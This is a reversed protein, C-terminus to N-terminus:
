LSRAVRFGTGFDRLLPFGWGRYAARASWQNLYWASSRLVRQGCTDTIFASGDTPADDYDSKYCDQTWQWVNGSMDYLGFKNAPFSGVPATYLFNDNCNPVTWTNYRVKVRQDAVNAIKCVSDPDTDRFYPTTTGARAAYEWEAETLLRYKKGTKKSLWDIYAQADDFNVCVVPDRDTQPYGPNEWSYNPYPVFKSGDPALGYCGEGKADYRTADVFEAFEARTVEYKGVAFSYDISVLHEGEDTERGREDEPSGMVFRGKPITVMEPCVDKCDRFGTGAKQAEVSGAAAAAVVMALIWVHLKM